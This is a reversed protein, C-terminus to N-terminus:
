HGHPLLGTTLLRHPPDKDWVQGGAGAWGRLGPSAHTPVRISSVLLGGVGERTGCRWVQICLTPVKIVPVSLSSSSGAYYAEVSPWGFSHRTIHEDFDKVTKCGPVLDPRM